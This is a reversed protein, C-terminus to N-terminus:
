AALPEPLDAVVAAVECLRRGGPAPDLEKVRRAPSGAYLGNPALDRSVVSGASVVAGAGVSVGPLVTVNACLWAGAGIVVSRADLDGMRQDSGAIAHGGTIIMTRPGLVAGSELIISAAGDLYSEPGVMAGKRIVIRRTGFYTGPGIKSPGADVGALRFFAWRLNRPILSTGFLKNVVLNFALDASFGRISAVLRNM